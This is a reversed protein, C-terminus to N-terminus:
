QKDSRANFTECPMSDFNAKSEDKYSSLGMLGLRKCVFTIPETGRDLISQVKESHDIFQQKIKEEYVSQRSELTSKAEEHQGILSDLAAIADKPETKMAKNIAKKLWAPSDKLKETIKEQSSTISNIDKMIDDRLTVDKAKDQAIKDLESAFQLKKVLLAYKRAEDQSEEFRRRAEELTISEDRQDATDIVQDVAVGGGFIQTSLLIAVLLIFVSVARINQCPIAPSSSQKKRRAM